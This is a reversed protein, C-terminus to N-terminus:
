SELLKNLAQKHIRYVSAISLVFCSAIESWSQDYFYRAEIIARERETLKEILIIRLKIKRAEYHAELDGLTRELEDIKSITDTFDKKLGDHTKLEETIHQGKISYLVDELASIKDKVLIIRKKIAKLEKFM